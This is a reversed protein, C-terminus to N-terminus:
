AAQTSEKPEWFSRYLQHMRETPLLEKLTEVVVPDFQTGAGRSLEAQVAMSDMVGRYPRRSSMADFADAVCVIRLSLPLEGGKLGDPYGAGDLKEHHNRIIMLVGDSLMLPKCIEYGIVPHERMVFFEEDTLRGRKNLIADPVGIKGIDHLITGIRLEELAEVGFGLREGILLSVECVRQSHGRTYEDRAELATALSELTRLFTARRREEMRANSVAVALLSSLAHLLEMDEAPFSDASQVDLLTMVGLVQESTSQGGGSFGRTVLPVCAASRVGDTVGDFDQREHDRGSIAVAQGMKAVYGSLGSGLPMRDPFKFEGEEGYAVETVLQNKDDEDLLMVYACNARTEHVASKLTHLITDRLSSTTSLSSGCDLVTQLRRDRATLTEDRTQFGALVLALVAVGVIIGIAVWNEGPSRGNYLTGGIQTAVVVAALGGVQKLSRTVLAQCLLIPICLAWLNTSALAASFSTLSVILGDITRIWGFIRHTRLEFTARNALLRHGWFNTGAMGVVVALTLPDQLLNGMLVSAAIILVWRIKLAYSEAAYRSDFRSNMAIVAFNGPAGRKMDSFSM